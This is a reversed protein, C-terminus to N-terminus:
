FTYCRKPHKPNDLIYCEGQSRVIGPRGLYYTAVLIQFNELLIELASSYKPFFPRILAVVLDHLKTSVLGMDLIKNLNHVVIILPLLHLTQTIAVNEREGVVPNSINVRVQSIISLFKSLTSMNGYFKRCMCDVKTALLIRASGEVIIEPHLAKVENVTPLLLNRSWTSSFM